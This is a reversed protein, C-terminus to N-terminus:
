ISGKKSRQQSLYRIRDRGIIRLTEYVPMNRIDYLIAQPCFTKKNDALYEQLKKVVFGSVM